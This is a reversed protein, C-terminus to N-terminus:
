LCEDSRALEVFLGYIFTAAARSGARHKGRGDHEKLSSWCHRCMPRDDQISAQDLIACRSSYEM